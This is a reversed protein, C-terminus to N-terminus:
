SPWPRARYRDTWTELPDLRCCSRPWCCCRSYAKRAVLNAEARPCGALAWYAVLAELETQMEKTILHRRVLCMPQESDSLRFWRRHSRRRVFHRRSFWTSLGAFMRPRSGSGRSTGALIALLNPGRRFKSRPLKYAIWNPGVM